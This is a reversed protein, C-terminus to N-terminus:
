GFVQSIYSLEGTGKILELILGTSSDGVGFELIDGSTKEVYHMLFAQHTGYPDDRRLLNSIRNFRQVDIANAGYLLKSWTPAENCTADMCPTAEDRIETDLSEALTVALLMALVKLWATLPSSFLSAHVNM